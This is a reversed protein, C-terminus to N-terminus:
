IEKMEKQITKIRAITKKLERIRGPNDPAGGASALANERILETRLKEVEDMRENPSMNRVEKTKLIAM